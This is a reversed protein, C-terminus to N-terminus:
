PDRLDSSVDLEIEGGGYSRLRPALWRAAFTPPATVRLLPSRKAFADLADEIDDLAESVRMALAKAKETPTLKPGHRIFLPEGLEAELKRMRWSVAAPSLCLTNAGRAFSGQSVCAALMRLSELSPRM